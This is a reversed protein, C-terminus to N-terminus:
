AENGEPEPIGNIRRMQREYSLRHERNNMDFDEPLDLIHSPDSKRSPRAKQRSEVWGPMKEGVETFKVHKMDRWDQALEFKVFATVQEANYGGALLGSAITRYHKNNYPPVSEVPAAPLAEIWAHIMAAVAKSKEKGAGKASDPALDKKERESTTESLGNAEKSGMITDNQYSASMTENQSSPITDNQYSAWAKYDITYWKRRDSKHKVSQMSLVLNKNELDLFLRKITSVALWPFYDKRWAPYSNYVWWREDVYNFKNKAKKQVNLLFHLQQFIIASNIGLHVALTPYVSIPPEDMLHPHSINKNTESM